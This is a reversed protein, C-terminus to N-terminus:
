TRMHDREGPDVMNEYSVRAHYAYATEHTPEAVKVRRYWLGADEEM